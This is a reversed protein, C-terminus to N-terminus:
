AAGLLRLGIGGIQLLEMVGPIFDKADSLIGYSGVFLEFLFVFQRDRKEAVRLAM